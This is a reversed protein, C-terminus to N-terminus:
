RKEELVSCKGSSGHWVHWISSCIKLFFYILTNYLHIQESLSMMCRLLMYVYKYLIYTICLSIHEYTILIYSLISTYVHMYAYMHMHSYIHMYIYVHTYTWIYIHITSKFTREGINGNHYLCARPWYWIYLMYFVIKLM